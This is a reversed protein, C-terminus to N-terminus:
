CPIIFLRRHKVLILVAFINYPLFHNQNGQDPPLILQSDQFYVLHKRLLENLILEVCGHQRPINWNTQLQQKPALKNWPPKGVVVKKNLVVDLQTLSRGFVIEISHHKIDGITEVVLRFDLNQEDAVVVEGPEVVVPFLLDQGDCSHCAEHEVGLVGHCGVVNSFM